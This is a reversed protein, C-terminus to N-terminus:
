TQNRTFTLTHYLILPFLTEQSTGITCSYTTNYAIIELTKGALVLLPNEDYDNSVFGCQYVYIKNDLVIVHASNTASNDYAQFLTSLFNEIDENYNNVLKIEIKPSKAEITIISTCLVSETENDDFYQYNTTNCNITCYIIEPITM